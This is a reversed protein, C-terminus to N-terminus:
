KVPTAIAEGAVKETARETAEKDEVKNAEEVWALTSTRDSREDDSTDQIPM